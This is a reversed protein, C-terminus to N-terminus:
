CPQKDLRPPHGFRQCESTLQSWPSEVVLRKLEGGGGAPVHLACGAAERGPDVLCDVRLAEPVSLTVIPEHNCMWTIATEPRQVGLYKM